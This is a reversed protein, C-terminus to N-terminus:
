TQSGLTEIMTMLPLVLAVATTLVYTALLLAFVWAARWRAAGIAVASLGLGVVVHPLPQVLVEALWPLRIGLDTFIAAFRLGTFCGIAPFSLALIAMVTAAATERRVEDVPSVLADGM